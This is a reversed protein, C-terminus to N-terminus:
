AILLIRDLRKGLLTEFAKKVGEFGARGRRKRPKNYCVEDM